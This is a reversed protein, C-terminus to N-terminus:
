YCGVYKLLFEKIENSLQDNADTDPTTGAYKLKNLFDDDYQPFVLRLWDMYESGDRVMDWHGDENTNMWGNHYAYYLHYFEHVVNIYLGLETFHDIKNYFITAKCFMNDDQHNCGFAMPPVLDGKYEINFSQLSNIITYIQLDKLKDMIHRIAKDLIENGTNTAAAQEYHNNRSDGSNNSGGGNNEEPNPTPDPEPDPEPNSSDSGSGNDGKNCQCMYLYEGCKECREPEVYVSCEHCGAGGCNPCYVIWEGNEYVMTGGGGRTVSGYEMLKTSVMILELDNLKDALARSRDNMYVGVIYKGEYYESIRVLKRTLSSYLVIGSFNKPSSHTYINEINRGVYKRDPIVTMIYASMTSDSKDKIVVLRQVTRVNYPGLYDHREAWINRSALIPTECIWQRENESIVSNTWVPTYDDPVLLKRDSECISGRTVISSFTNQFFTQAEKKTIGNKQLNLDNDYEIDNRCGVTTLVIFYFLLTLTRKMM